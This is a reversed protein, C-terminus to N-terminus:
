IFSHPIMLARCAVKIVDLNIKNSENSDPPVLSYRDAMHHNAFFSTLQLWRKQVLGDLCSKLNNRAEQIPVVQNMMIGRVRCLMRRLSNHAIGLRIHHYCNGLTIPMDLILIEDKVHVLCVSVVLLGGLVGDMLLTRVSDDHLHTCVVAFATSNGKNHSGGALDKLWHNDELTFPPTPNCAGLKGGM